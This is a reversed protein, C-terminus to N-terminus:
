DHPSLCCVMLQVPVGDLADFEIPADLRFWGAHITRVHGKTHPIALGRGIGTSGLLERKILALGTQEIFDTAYDRGELLARAMKRLADPKDRAAFHPCYVMDDLLHELM